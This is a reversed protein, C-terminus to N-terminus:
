HFMIRHKRIKIVIVKGLQLRRAATKRFRIFRYLCTQFSPIPNGQCCIRDKRRCGRFFSDSPCANILINEIQDRCIFVTMVALRIRHIILLHQLTKANLSFIAQHDAIVTQFVADDSLQAYRDKQNVAEKQM